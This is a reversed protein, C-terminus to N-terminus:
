YSISRAVCLRKFKTVRPSSRPGRGNPRALRAGLASNRDFDTTDFDLVSDEATTCWAQVDNATLMESDDLKMLKPEAGKSRRYETKAAQQQSVVQMDAIKEIVTLLRAELREDGERRVREQYGVPTQRGVAPDDRSPNPAPAPEGVPSETPSTTPQTTPATPPAQPAVPPDVAVNSESANGAAPPVVRGSRLEVGEAM